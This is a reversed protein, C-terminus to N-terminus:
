LNGDQWEHYNNIKLVQFTTNVLQTLDGWVTLIFFNERNGGGGGGGGSSGWGPSERLEDCLETDGPACCYEGLRAVEGLESASSSALMGGGGVEALRGGM